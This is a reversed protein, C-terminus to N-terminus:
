WRSNIARIEKVMEEVKHGEPRCCVMMKVDPAQTFHGVAQVFRCDMGAWDLPLPAMLPTFNEFQKSDPYCHFWSADTVFLVLDPRYQQIELGLIDRYTPIHDRVMAMPSNGGHRPAIKYLNSWLLRQPWNEDTGCFEKVLTRMFRLFPSRAHYYTSGDEQVTSETAFKYLANEQKLVSDVTDELTPCEGFDVEWGNVSRGVVMLRPSGDKGYLEGKMCPAATLNGNRIHEWIPKEEWVSSLLASFCSEILNKEQSHLNGQVGLYYEVM